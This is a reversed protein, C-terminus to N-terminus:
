NYPGHSAALVPPFERDQVAWAAETLVADPLVLIANATVTSVLLKIRFQGVWDHIEKCYQMACLTLRQESIVKLLHTYTPKLIVTNATVRTSEIPSLHSLLLTQAILTDLSDTIARTQSQLLPISDKTFQLASITKDLTVVDVGIHLLTAIVDDVGINSDIKRLPSDPTAAPHVDQQSSGESIPKGLLKSAIALLTFITYALKMKM